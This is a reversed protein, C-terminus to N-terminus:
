QPTAAPAPTEPMATSSQVRPFGPPMQLGNRALPRHPMDPRSSGTAPATGPRLFARADLPLNVSVREVVMVDPSRNTGAGTVISTPIQLGDFEKYDHYLLTVTVPHGDRTYSTRDSKVDLFTQTDVWVHQSEGSPQTVQLRFAPRGDVPEVGELKVVNHKEVSDILPGDIGQLNQAHSIEQPTFPVVRPGAGQTARLTWGEAGDFIRVSRQNMVSLEFRTKNPREQELDFAMSPAPGDSTKMHGQWIMTRVARWADLGGRAAANREVIQAASLVPVGAPLPAYAGLTLAPALALAALWPRRAASRISATTASFSSSAKM